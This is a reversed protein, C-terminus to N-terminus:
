FAHVQVLEFAHQGLSEFELDEEQPVKKRLPSEPTGPAWGRWQEVENRLAVRGELGPRAKKNM